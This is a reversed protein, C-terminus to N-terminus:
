GGLGSLNAAVAAQQSLVASRQARATQLIATRNASTVFRRASELGAAAAAAAQAAAVSDQDLTVWVDVKGRQSRLRYDLRDASAGQAAVRRETVQPAQPAGYSEETDLGSQDGGGGGGCAALLLAALTLSTSRRM